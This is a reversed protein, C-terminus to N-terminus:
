AAPEAGARRAAGGGGDREERGLVETRDAIGPGDERVVGREGIADGQEAVVARAGLIVVDRDASVKADVRQLGGDDGGLQRTEGAPGGRPAGM